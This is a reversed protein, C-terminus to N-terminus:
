GYVKIQNELNKLDKYFQDKNFKKLEEVERKGIENKEM